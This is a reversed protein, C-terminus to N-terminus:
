EENEVPRWIGDDNLRRIVRMRESFLEQVRQEDAEPFQMRIGDRALGSGMEFLEAGAMFKDAFSLKRARLVKERFIEDAMQRISEANM